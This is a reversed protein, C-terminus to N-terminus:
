DEFETRQIIENMERAAAKVAAAIDKGEISAVIARGIADRVEPIAKVPPLPLTSTNDMSSNVAELLGPWSDEYYRYVKEDVYVSKRCTTIGDLANKITAEKSTMYQMFLWAAQKNKSDGAMSLGWLSLSPVSGSRGGPLKAYGLKGAIKSKTPDEFQGIFSGGDTIMAAQGQLMLSIEEPWDYNVIGPPGYKRLMDGYFKFAEIGEPSDITAKKNEDVWEAGFGHLYSAISTVAPSGKGRAIFGYTDVKGDGDTDLTLKRAAEEMETYTTPVKVNYKDFLDKRYILITVMQMFPIGVLDNNITEGNIAYRNFDDFDYESHTLKANKAYGQLPEVWGAEQFRNGEQTPQMMFVDVLGKQASVEIALKQRFQAEAFTEFVVKIGTKKEFEPLLSKISDTWPHVAGLFRIKAGNCQKWNFENAAAVGLSSVLVLSLVLGLLISRRFLSGKQM